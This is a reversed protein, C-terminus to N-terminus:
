KMTLFRRRLQQRHWDSESIVENFAPIVLTIGVTDDLNRMPFQDNRRFYYLDSLWTVNSLLILHMNIDSIQNRAQRRHPLYRPASKRGQEQATVSWVRKDSAHAMTCYVNNVFVGSGGYSSPLEDREGNRGMYNEPLCWFYLQVTPLHHIALRCLTSSKEASRLGPKCRNSLPLLYHANDNVM